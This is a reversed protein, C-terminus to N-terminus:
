NERATEVALELRERARLVILAKDAASARSWAAIEMRSRGCGLCYDAADLRCLKICPSAVEAM